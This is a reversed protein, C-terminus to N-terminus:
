THPRRLLRSRLRRYRPGLELRRAFLLTLLVMGGLSLMAIQMAEGSEPPVNIGLLSDGGSTRGGHAGAGKRTAPKSYHAAQVEGVAGANAEGGGGLLPEFGSLGPLSVPASEPRECGTTAATLRLRRLARRELAHLRRVTLHLYQAAARPGLAYPAGVGARLELVRRLEPPLNGLCGAFRRVTALLALQSTLARGRLIRLQV